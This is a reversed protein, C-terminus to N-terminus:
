QKLKAVGDACLDYRRLESIDSFDAWDSENDQTNQPIKNTFDAWTEQPNSPEPENSSNNAWPSTDM